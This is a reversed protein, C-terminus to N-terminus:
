FAPRRVTCVRQMGICRAASAQPPPEPPLEHDRPVRLSRARTVADRERERREVEAGLEAHFRALTEAAAASAPGSGPSALEGSAGAAHLPGVAAAAAAFPGLSPAASLPPPPLQALLAELPALLPTLLQPPAVPGALRSLPELSAQSSM